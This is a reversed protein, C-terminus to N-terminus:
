RLTRARVNEIARARVRRSEMKDAVVAVQAQMQGSLQALRRVSSATRRAAQEVLALQSALSPDM